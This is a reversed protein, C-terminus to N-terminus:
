WGVSSTIESSLSILQYFTTPSRLDTCCGVKRDNVWVAASLGSPIANPHPPIITCPNLALLLCDVWSLAIDWWPVLIEENVFVCLCWLAPTPTEPRVLPRDAFVGGRRQVSESYGSKVVQKKALPREYIVVSARCSTVWRWLWPTQPPRKARREGEMVSGPSRKRSPSSLYTRPRCSLWAAPLQCRMWRYSKTKM